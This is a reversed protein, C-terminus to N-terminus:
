EDRRSMEILKQLDRDVCDMLLVAEAAVELIAQKEAKSLPGRGGEQPASM